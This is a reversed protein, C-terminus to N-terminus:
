KWAEELMMGASRCIDRVKEYRKVANYTFGDRLDFKSVDSELWGVFNYGQEIMSESKKKDIPREMALISIQASREGEKIPAQLLCYKM